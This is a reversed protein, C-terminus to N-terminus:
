ASVPVRPAPLAALNQIVGAIARDVVDLVEGTTRGPADNWRTLWQVKALRVQPSSVVNLGGPTITPQGRSEWLGEYVADVARGVEADRGQQSGARILAGVLCVAGVTRPNSPGGALGRVLTQRGPGAPMTWWGGQVWGSTLEARAGELLALVRELVAHQLEDPPQPVSLLGRLRRWWPRKREARRNTGDSAPRAVAGGVSEVLNSAESTRGRRVITISTM